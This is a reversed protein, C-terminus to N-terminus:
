FVELSVLYGINPNFTLSKLVVDQYLNQDILSDLFTQVAKSSHAVLNIEGKEAEIEVDSIVMDSPLISTLKEFKELGEETKREALVSKAKALRDRIVFFGQETETISNIKQKRQEEENRLNNIGASSVVFYAGAIGGLFLFLVYGALVIKKFNSATRLAKKGASVDIPLLNILKM